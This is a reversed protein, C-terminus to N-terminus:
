HQLNQPSFIGDSIPQRFSIDQYTMVTWEGPRDAMLVTVRSPLSRGEFQQHLSFTMTRVLRGEDDFYRLSLPLYDGQRVTIIIKGWVVAAGAKPLCTIEVVPEGDRAGTFTISVQYEEALRSEKVLDDYTIHAGFCPASMMSSPLKVLRKVRPLYNWVEGGSRLIATGKDKEPSLIKMLTRDRGKTWFEAMLIRHWHATKIDMTMFGQSATGRHLDEVKDLIEKATPSGAAQCFSTEWLSVLFFVMLALILAGKDVIGWTRASGQNAEGAAGEVQWSVGLSKEWPCPAQPGEYDWGVVAGYSERYGLRM